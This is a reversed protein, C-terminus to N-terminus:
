CHELNGRGLVPLLLKVDGDILETPPKSTLTGAASIGGLIAPVLLMAKVYPHTEIVVCKVEDAAAIVLQVRAM